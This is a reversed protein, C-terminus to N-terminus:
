AARWRKKAAKSEAKTKAHLFQKLIHHDPKGLHILKPKEDFWDLRCVENDLDLWSIYGGREVTPYHYFDEGVLENTLQKPDRCEAIYAVHFRDLLDIKYDRASVSLRRGSILRTGRPNVIMEDAEHGLNSALDEDFEVDACPIKDTLYHFGLPGDKNPPVIRLLCAGAEPEKVHRVVASVGWLPKVAQEIHSTLQAALAELDSPHVSGTTDLLSILM